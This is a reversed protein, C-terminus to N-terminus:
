AFARSSNALKELQKINFILEYLKDAYANPKATEALAFGNIEESVVSTVGGTNTTLTVIGYASAKCFVIPTCDARTPAFLIHIETLLQDFKIRNENKQYFIL